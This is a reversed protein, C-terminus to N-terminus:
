PLSSDATMTKGLPNLIFFIFSTVLATVIGVGLALFLGVDLWFYVICFVAGSILNLILLYLFAFLVLDIVIGRVLQRPLATECEPCRIM